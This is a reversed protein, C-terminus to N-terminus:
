ADHGLLDDAEAKKERGKFVCVQARHITMAWAAMLPIQTRSLLTYDPNPGSEDGLETVM